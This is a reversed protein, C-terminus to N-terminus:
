AGAAAYSRLGLRWVGAAGAVFVALWGVQLAFGATLGGPGGAPDALLVEMPYSLMFRFPQVATVAAIGPPMLALPVVAGSLVPTIVALARIFGQVDEFWFALSGIMIDLALRMGAALVVAVAFLLWRGADSPLAIRDGLLLALAAILPVIIVLKVVKEGVNNAVADLHTSAPRILWRNLAGDRISAALYFATWSATLMGVVSVLLFYAVLFEGDVPLPAGSALAAQWVLLSTIPVILNGIQMILFEGRYQFTVGVNLAFLRGFLHLQRM